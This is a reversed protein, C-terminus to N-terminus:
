SRFKRVESEVKEHYMKDLVQTIMTRYRNENTTDGLKKYVKSLGRLSPIHMFSINLCKNYESISEEFFGDKILQM